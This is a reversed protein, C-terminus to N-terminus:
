PLHRGMLANVGVYKICPEVSDTMRSISLLKAMSDLAPTATKYVKKPPMYETAIVSTTWSKKMRKPNTVDKSEALVARVLSENLHQAYRESPRMWGNISFSQEVMLVPETM